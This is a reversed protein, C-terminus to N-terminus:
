LGIKIIFHFASKGSISIKEDASCKELKRQSYDSVSNSWFLKLLRMTQSKNGSFNVKMM